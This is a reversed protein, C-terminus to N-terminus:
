NHILKKGAKARQIIDINVIASLHFRADSISNSLPLADKKFEEKNLLSDEDEELEWLNNAFADLAVLLDVLAPNVLEKM